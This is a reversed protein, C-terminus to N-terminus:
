LWRVKRDIVFRIEAAENGLRTPGWDLQEHPYNPVCVQSNGCPIIREGILDVVLDKV